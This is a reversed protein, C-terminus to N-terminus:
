GCGGVSILGEDLRRGNKTSPRGEPKLGATGSRRGPSRRASPADPEGSWALAAAGACLCAATLFAPSYTGLDSRALGALYGAVVAGVGASPQDGATRHPQLVHRRLASRQASPWFAQGTRTSGPGSRDSRSASGVTSRM